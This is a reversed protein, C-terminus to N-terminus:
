LFNALMGVCAEERAGGWAMSQVLMLLVVGSEFQESDSEIFKKSGPM